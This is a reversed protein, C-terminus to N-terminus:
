RLEEGIGAPVMPAYKEVERHCSHCLTLLNDVRNAELESEFKKFPKIHHVHLSQGHEDLHQENSMGCKRCENSDRELAAKRGAEWGAGYHDVSGGNWLWHDKGTYEGRLVESKSLGDIGHKELWRSVTSPGVGLSKAIKRRSKKQSVHQEKLWEKDRLKQYDGNTHAEAKDKAEIGLKQFRRCITADTTDFREAIEAHTMGENHYLRELEQKEPLEVKKM